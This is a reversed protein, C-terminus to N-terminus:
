GRSSLYVWGDEPKYDYPMETLGSVNSNNFDIYPNPFDGQTPPQGPEDIDNIWVNGNAFPQYTGDPNQYVRWDLGPENPMLNPSPYLTDVPCIQSFGLFPM